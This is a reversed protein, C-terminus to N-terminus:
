SAPTLQVVSGATQAETGHHAYTLEFRGPGSITGTWPGISPRREPGHALYSALAERVVRSLTTHRSEAISQLEDAEDASLRVSVVVGARPKREVEIVDGLEIDDPGM